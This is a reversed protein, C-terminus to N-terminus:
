AVDERNWKQMEGCFVTFSESDIFLRQIAAMQNFFTEQQQEFTSASAIFETLDRYIILPHWKNAKNGLTTRDSLRWEKPLKSSIDLVLQDYYGHVKVKPQLKKNVSLVVAAIPATNLLDHIQHDAGDVIFGCFLAPQWAKEDNFDALSSFELGIRGWTDNRGRANRHKPPSSFLTSSSETLLPWQNNISHQCINYLQQDINKAEQYYAISLPNIASVNILGNSELLQIFEERIWNLKENDSEIAQIQKAIDYWCLAIDPQQRHQGVHATILVILFRKNLSKEAFDRYNSLQKHHLESWIKHEFIVCFDRDISEWLMDPFKGNFNVQTDIYESEAMSDIVLGKQVAKQQLLHNISQRVSEDNKLLWAFAETVFNEIPSTKHSAAYKSINVLLSNRM